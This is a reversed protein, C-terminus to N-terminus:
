KIVKHQYTKGHSEIKVPLDEIESILNIFKDSSIETAVPKATSTKAPHYKWTSFQRLKDCKTIALHTAPIHTQVGGLPVPSAVVNGCWKAETVSKRNDNDGDLEDLVGPKRNKVRETLYTPIVCIIEDAERHGDYVAVDCWPLFSDYGSVIRVMNPLQSIEDVVDEVPQSFVATVDLPANVSKLEELRAFAWEYVEDVKSKLNKGGMLVDLATFRPPQVALGDGMWDNVPLGSLMELRAVATHYSTTIFTHGDIFLRNNLDNIGIENLKLAELALTSPNVVGGAIVSMAGTVIGVPVQTLRIHHGGFQVFSSSDSRGALRIVLDANEARCVTEIISGCGADSHPSFISIKKM